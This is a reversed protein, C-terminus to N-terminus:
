LSKELKIPLTFYFTTGAENSDLLNLEGEHREIISRCIALGIGTGQSKTTFFTNLIQSKYEAEIGPGNDKVTVTIYKHMNRTQITITPNLTQSSQLAEISNRALNLIVQMIQIKNTMVLPLNSVLELNIKVKFGFFEYNITAITNKILYNINTLEARPSENCLLNKMSHIIRGAHEAHHSIQELPYKIKRLKTQPSLTSQILYSCTTTYTNIITLPQNIEHALASMMEEMTSLRSSSAIKSQQQYKVIEQIKYETLDRIGFILEKNNFDDSLLYVRIEYYYYVELDYNPNELIVLSKNGELAEFCAKIIKSKLQPLTVLSKELNCGEKIRVSFIKLFLHYFSPNIIKFCLNGDLAAIADESANVLQNLLSIKKELDAILTNKQHLCTIDVLCLQISHHRDLTCELQIVRREGGTILIEIECAQKYGKSKLNEIANKFKFESLTTVYTLISHHILLSRARGLFAAATFNLNQIIYNTDITIYLSNNFEYLEKYEDQTEFTDNENEKFM